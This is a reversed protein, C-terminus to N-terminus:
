EEGLIFDIVAIIHKRMYELNYFEYREDDWSHAFDDGIKYFPKNWKEGLEGYVGIHTQQELRYYTQQGNWPADLIKDKYKDHLDTTLYIYTCWTSQVGWDPKEAKFGHESILYGIDRHKGRCSIVTEYNVEITRKHPAYIRTYEDDM